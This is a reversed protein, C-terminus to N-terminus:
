FKQKSRSLNESKTITYLNKNAPASVRHLNWIAKLLPVALWFYIGAVCLFFASSMQIALLKKIIEEYGERFLITITVGTIAAYSFAAQAILKLLEWLADRIDIITKEISPITTFIDRNISLINECDFLNCELTKLHYDLIVIVCLTIGFVAHFVV